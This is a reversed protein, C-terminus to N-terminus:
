HFHCLNSGNGQLGLTILLINNVHYKSLFTRPILKSTAQLNANRFNGSFNSKGTSPVTKKASRLLTLSICVLGSSINLPSIYCIASYWQPREQMSNRCTLNSLYTRFFKKIAFSETSFLNRKFNSDVIITKSRLSSILARSKFDNPPKM